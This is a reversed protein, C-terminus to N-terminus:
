LSAFATLLLILLLIVAALFPLYVQFDILTEETLVQDNLSKHESQDSVKSSQECSLASSPIIVLKVYNM